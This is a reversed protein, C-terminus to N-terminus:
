KFLLKSVNLVLKDLVRNLMKMFKVSGEFYVGAKKNDAKIQVNELIQTTSSINLKAHLKLFGSSWNHDKGGSVYIFINVNIHLCLLCM